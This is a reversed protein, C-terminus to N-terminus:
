KGFLKSFFGRKPSPPRPPQPLSPRPPQKAAAPPPAPPRPPPATPPRPPQLPPAGAGPEPLGTPPPPVPGVGHRVSVRPPSALEPSPTPFTLAEPLEFRIRYNGLEIEDGHRLPATDVQIGNVISGNTSNLDKIVYRGGPERIISCHYRSVSTDPLCLDNASDRGVTVVEKNIPHEFTVNEFSVHLKPVQVSDLTETKEIKGSDVVGRSFHETGSMPTMMNEGAIPTVEEPPVTLTPTPQRFAPPLPPPPPVQAPRENAQIAPPPIAPTPAESPSLWPAAMTAAESPEPQEVVPVRDTGSTSATSIEIRPMPTLNPIPTELTPPAEEPPVPPPPPSPPPPPALEVAPVAPATATTESVISAGGRPPAAGAVPTPAVLVPQPGSMSLAASAAEVLPLAISRPPPPEVPMEPQVPETLAGGFQALPPPAPSEPTTPSAEVVRLESGAIGGVGSGPVAVSVQTRDILAAPSPVETPAPPVLTTEVPAVPVSPLPQAAASEGTSPASVLEVRATSEAPMAIAIPPPEAPASAAAVPIATPVVSAPMGRSTTTDPTSTEVFRPEGAIEEVEIVVPGIHWRDGPRVVSGEGGAGARFRTGAALQVHLANDGFRIVLKPM